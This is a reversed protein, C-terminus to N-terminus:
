VTFCEHEDVQLLSVNGMVAVFVAIGFSFNKLAKLLAFWVVGSTVTILVRHSQTLHNSTMMIIVSAIALGIQWMDIWNWIEKLYTGLQSYCQYIERGLVLLLVIPILM